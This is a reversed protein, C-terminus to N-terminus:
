WKSRRGRRSTYMLKARATQLGAEDFQARIVLREIKRHEVGRSPRADRSPLEFLGAVVDRGDKFGQEFVNGRRMAVLVLRELDANGVDLVVVVDPPDADSADVVADNVGAM